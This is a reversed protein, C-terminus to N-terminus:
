VHIDTESASAAILLLFIISFGIDDDSSSIPFITDLSSILKTLSMVIDTSRVSDFFMLRM